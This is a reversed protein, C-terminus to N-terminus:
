EIIKTMNFETIKGDPGVKAKIRYKAEKEKAPDTREIEETASFQVSYEYDGDGVEKKDIKYDNNIRWNMNTIDEKYIKNMFTVVDSKTADPKGLFSTLFSSVTSTIGDENKSNISQFFHRFISNIASKEEPQVTKADLTKVADNAEDIHEGNAHDNLYMKYAEPTNEASARSWDLSDMKHQAEIKHPSDPHKTLYDELASKSGSVVANTWDQDVQKLLTLHSQISDRHAESAEKYTDLFSQLVLPDSSSMAYEYAEQEKSNNANRYFYFCGACIILALIFSVIIAGHGKKKPNESKPTTTMPQPQEAVPSVPPVYGHETKHVTTSKPHTSPQSVGAAVTAHHCNPCMEHDNFYVEGCQPCRTVKNAIEVGCSPCVHAKDSIQHGCEPCKIIAM